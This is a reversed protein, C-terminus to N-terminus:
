PEVLEIFTPPHVQGSPIMTCRALVRDPGAYGIAMSKVPIRSFHGLLVVAPSTSHSRKNSYVHLSLSVYEFGRHRYHHRPSRHSNQKFWRSSYILSSLFRRM